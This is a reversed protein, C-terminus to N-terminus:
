DNSIDHFKALNECYESLLCWGSCKRYMNGQTRLNLDAPVPTRVVALPGVAVRRPLLLHRGRHGHRLVGLGLLLGALLELVFWPGPELSVASWACTLYAAFIKIIHGVIKILIIKTWINKLFRKTGLYNLKVCCINGPPCSLLCSVRSLSIGCAARSTCCCGGGRGAAGGGAASCSGTAACSTCSGGCSCSVTRLTASLLTLAATAASSDCARM